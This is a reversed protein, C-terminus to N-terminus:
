VMMRYRQGRGTQCILSGHGGIDLAGECNMITGRNGVANVVVPRGSGYGIATASRGGSFGMGIAANETVQYEGQLVEGDPMTITVPGSGLGSRVFEIKPVGAQMAAEDLPYVRAQDACGGCLEALALAAIFRILATGM